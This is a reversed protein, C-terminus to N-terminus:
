SRTDSVRQAHAAVIDAAWAPPTVRRVLADLVAAQAHILRPMWLMADTREDADPAVNATDIILQIRDIEPALLQRAFECVVRAPDLHDGESGLLAVLDPFEARIAPEIKHLQRWKDSPFDFRM